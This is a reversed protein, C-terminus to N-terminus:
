AAAAGVQSLLSGYGGNGFFEAEAATSERGLADNRYPFRGFLRIVERHAKAHPLNAGGTQPMRSLVLRVCREQHTLCESHMLPMYFFQREPEDWRLDYGVDIAHNAVERAKRDTSFARPDGRFMNRPFQDLLILLSMVKDPCFAWSDYGGDRATEWDSMFRARISSDLEEDEVYWGDLGVENIWFDRIAQAKDM